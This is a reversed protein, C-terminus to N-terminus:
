NINIPSRSSGSPGAEDDKDKEFQLLGRNIEDLLKEKEHLFAALDEMIKLLGTRDVLKQVNEELDEIRKNIDHIRSAYALYERDLRCLQKFTLSSSFDPEKAIEKKVEEFKAWADDRTLTSHRAQESRRKKEEVSRYSVVSQGSAAECRVKRVTSCRTCDLEGHVFPIYVSVHAENRENDQAGDVVADRAQEQAAVTAQVEEERRPSIATPPVVDDPGDNLVGNIWSDVDDVEQAPAPNPEGHEPAPAQQLQVDAAPVQNHEAHEPAPAQQHQVGMAPVQNQEVGMAPEQQPEMNMHHDVGNTAQADMAPAHHWSGFMWPQLHQQASAQLGFSPAMNHGADVAPPAHFGYAQPWQDAIQQEQFGFAAPDPQDGAGVMQDLLGSPRFPLNSGVGLMLAQNDFPQHEVNDVALPPFGFAAMTNHDIVAPGQFFGPAPPVQNNGVNIAAPAHCHLAPAAQHPGANIAPGQQLSGLVPAPRMMEMALLAEAHPVHIQGGHVPALPEPVYLMHSDHGAPSQLNRSLDGNADYSM